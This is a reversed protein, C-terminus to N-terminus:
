DNGQRHRFVGIAKVDEQRSEWLWQSACCVISAVLAHFQQAGSDGNGEPPAIAVAQKRTGHDRGCYAEFALRLHVALLM